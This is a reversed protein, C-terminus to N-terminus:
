VTNVPYRLSAPGGIVCSLRTVVSNFAPTLTAMPTMSSYLARFVRNSTPQTRQTPSRKVDLKSLVFELGEQRGITNDITRCGELKGCCVELLCETHLPLHGLVEHCITAPIHELKFGLHHTNYRFREPPYIQKHLPHASTKLKIYVVPIICTTSSYWDVCLNLVPTFVQNLRSHQSRLSRSSIHLSLTQQIKERQSQFNDILVREAKV